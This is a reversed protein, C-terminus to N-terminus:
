PVLLAVKYPTGGVIVNLYNAVAGATAALSANVLSLAQTNCNLELSNVNLKMLGVFVGGPSLAGYYTNQPAQITGATVTVGDQFTQRQQFTNTSNLRPILASLRADALTGTTIDGADHAHATPTFTSPKGLLNDWHRVNLSSQAFVETDAILTTGRFDSM